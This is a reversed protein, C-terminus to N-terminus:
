TGNSKIKKKFKRYDDFKNQDTMKYLLFPYIKFRNGYMFTVDYVRIFLM